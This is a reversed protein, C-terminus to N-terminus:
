FHRCWARQRFLGLVLSGTMWMFAPTAPYVFNRTARRRNLGMYKIKFTTELPILPLLGSFRKVHEKGKIRCAQVWPGARTEDGHRGCSRVYCVPSDLPAEIFPVSLLRPLVLCCKGICEVFFVNEEKSAGIEPEGERREEGGIEEM